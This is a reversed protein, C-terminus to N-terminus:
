GDKRVLITFEYLGYDHLLAVNLAYRRKCLDFLALPDAYFLDPRRKDEDSYTSLCNFAFGRAAAGDMREMTDLIYSQWEADPTDLRVNFIGSALVFDAPVPFAQELFSTKWGNGADGWQKSAQELMVRSVDCGCYDVDAWRNRMYEVLAGYGCGLDALSFGGTEPLLRCLERFRVQQSQIGNWDVGQPTAGHAHLKGTYYSGVKNLIDSSSM